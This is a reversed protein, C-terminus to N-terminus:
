GKPTFTAYFKRLGGTNWDCVTGKTVLFTDGAEFRHTTSAADTLEIWGELLYMVEHKPFTTAIRHYATTEWAGVNWQTSPDMRMTFDGQRPDGSILLHTPTPTSAPIIGIDSRGARLIAESSAPPSPPTYAMVYVSAGPSPEWGDAQGPALGFIEGPKAQEGGPLKVTGDIVQGFVYADDLSGASAPLPGSYCTVGLTEDTFVVRWEPTPAFKFFQQTM